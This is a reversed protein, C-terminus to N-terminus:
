MNNKNSKREVKKKNVPFSSMSTNWLSEFLGLLSTLRKDGAVLAGTTILSSIFYIADTTSDFAM